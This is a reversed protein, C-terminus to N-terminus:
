RARPGRSGPSAGQQQPDQPGQQPAQQQPAQPRRRAGQLRRIEDRLRAAEEYREEAVAQELQKRLQEIRAAVPVTRGAPAKGVHRTHGHVRRVVPELVDAFTNYCQACGLLGTRAFEQYTLGCGPCARAGPGRRARVGAHPEHQKLLGALLHHLSFKPELLFDFEGHERACRECLHLDTTEHNVVQTLHFRAPREGCEQCLIQGGMGEAELPKM